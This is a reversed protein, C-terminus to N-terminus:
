QGCTLVAEAVRAPRHLHVAQGSGTAVLRAAGRTVPAIERLAEVARDTM